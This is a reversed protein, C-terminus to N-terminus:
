GTDGTHRTGNLEKRALIGTACALGGAGKRYEGIPVRAAVEIGMKELMAAFRPVDDAIVVRREGVVVFNFAQKVSVEYSEPIHHIQFKADALASLLRKSVIETRVLATREGVVQMAGLLHQVQSPVPVPYTRVGRWGLWSEIQAFAAANSRQGIGFLVKSDTLWLCDAGEFTGTSGITLGIPVGLRALALSAIREEGARVPSAMRPVIAGYPTMFFVDRQYILNPWAFDEGGSPPVLVSIGLNAYTAIIEEYESSIRFYDMSELHLVTDPNPVNGLGIQPEHLLVHTLESFESDVRYPSWVYGEAVDRELSGDRETWSPGHYAMPRLERAASVDESM